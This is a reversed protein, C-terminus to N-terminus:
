FSKGCDICKIGNGWKETNVHSCKKRLKLWGFSEMEEVSWNRFPLAYGLKRLNDSDSQLLGGGLVGIAAILGRANKYGLRKADEDSIDSLPTLELHEVTLLGFGRSILTGFNVEITESGGKYLGAEQYLYQAFFAEKDQQTM